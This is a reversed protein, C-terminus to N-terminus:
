DKCGSVTTTSSSAASTTTSSSATPQEPLPWINCFLNPTSGIPACQGTHGEFECESGVTYIASDCLSQGIDCWFAAGLGPKYAQCTGEKPTACGHLGCGM